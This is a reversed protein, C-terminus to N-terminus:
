VTHFTKKKGFYELATMGGAIQTKRKKHQRQMGKGFAVETRPMQTELEGEEM